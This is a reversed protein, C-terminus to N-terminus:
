AFTQCIRQIGTTQVPKASASIQLGQVPLLSIRLLLHNADKQDYIGNPAYILNALEFEVFGTFPEQKHPSTANEMLPLNEEM